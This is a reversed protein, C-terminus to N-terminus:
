ENSKERVVSLASYQELMIDSLRKEIDQKTITKYIEMSDFISYGGFHAAIFGNAISDIDNYEMIEIGYMLRRVAEFQADDIGETKLRAVEAKIAESVAEPNSSEGDFIIAEYGYGIFYEKSFSANILGKKFLQNYLDSTKGALIELLINTAVITRIDQKPM